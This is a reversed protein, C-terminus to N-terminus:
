EERKRNVTKTFAKTTTRVEQWTGSWENVVTELTGGTFMFYKSNESLVSSPGVNKSYDIVKGRHKYTVAGFQNHICKQMVDMLAGTVNGDTWKTSIEEDAGILFARPPSLSRLNVPNVDTTESQQSM